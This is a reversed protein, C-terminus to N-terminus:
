WVDTGFSVNRIGVQYSRINGRPENGSTRIDRIGSCHPTPDSPVTDSPIKPEKTPEATGRYLRGQRRPEYSRARPKPSVVHSVAFTPEGAMLCSSVDANRPTQRIILSSFVGSAMRYCRPAVWQVGTIWNLLAIRERDEFASLCVTAYAMPIQSIYRTSADACSIPEDDIGGITMDPSLAHSRMPIPSGSCVICKRAEFEVQTVPGRPRGWKSSKNHSILEYLDCFKQKSRSSLNSNGEDICDGNMRQQCSTTDLDDCYGATAESFGRQVCRAVQSLWLCTVFGDTIIFHVTTIPYSRAIRVALPEYVEGIM